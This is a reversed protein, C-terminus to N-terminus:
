TLIKMLYWTLKLTPTNIVDIVLELAHALSITILLFNIIAFSFIKKM